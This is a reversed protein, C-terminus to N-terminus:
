RLEVVKSNPSVKAVATQFHLGPIYPLKGASKSYKMERNISIAFDVANHGSSSIASWSNGYKDEIAVRAKNGCLYVEKTHLGDHLKHGLAKNMGDIFEPLSIPEQGFKAAYFLGRSAPAFMRPKFKLYFTYGTDVERFQVVVSKRFPIKSSQTSVIGTYCGKITVMGSVPLSLDNFFPIICNTVREKITSGDTLETHEIRFVGGVSHVSLVVLEEDDKKLHAVVADDSASILEVDIDDGSLNRIIRCIDM